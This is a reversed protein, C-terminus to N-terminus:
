KNAVAPRRGLGADIANGHSARRVAASVRTRPAVVRARRGAATAVDQPQAVHTQPVLNASGTSSGTCASLGITLAALGIYATFTKM